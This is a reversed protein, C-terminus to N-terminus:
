ELVKSSSKSHLRQKPKQDPTRMAVKTLNPVGSQDGEQNKNGKKEAATQQHPSERM